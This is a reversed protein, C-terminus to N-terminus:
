DQSDLETENLNPTRGTKYNGSGVVRDRAMFTGKTELLERVKTILRRQEDSVEPDKEFDLLLEVEKKTGTEFIKRIKDEDEIRQGISGEIM